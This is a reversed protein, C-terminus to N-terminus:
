DEKNRKNFIKKDKGKKRITLSITIMKKKKRKSRM